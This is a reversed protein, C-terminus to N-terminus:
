SAHSPLSAAAPPAPAPTGAPAAHAWPVELKVNLQCRDRCEEALWNRIADHRQCMRGGNPCTM